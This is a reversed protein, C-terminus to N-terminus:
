NRKFSNGAPIKCPGENRKEETRAGLWVACWGRGFFFDRFLCLVFLNGAVGGCPHFIEFLQIGIFSYLCESGVYVSVLLSCTAELCLCRTL